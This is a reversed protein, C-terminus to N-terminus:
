RKDFLIPQNRLLPTKPEKTAGALLLSSVLLRMGFLASFVTRSMTSIGTPGNPRLSFDPMTSSPRATLDANGIQRLFPM